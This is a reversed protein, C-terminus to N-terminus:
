GTDTKNPNTTMLTQILETHRKEGKKRSTNDTLLLHGYPFAM